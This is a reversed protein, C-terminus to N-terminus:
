VISEADFFLNFLMEGSLYIFALISKFAYLRKRLLFLTGCLLFLANILYLVECASDAKHLGKTTVM